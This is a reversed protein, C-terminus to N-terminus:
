YLALLGFLEKEDIYDIPKLMVLSHSDSTFIPNLAQQRQSTGQIASKLPM